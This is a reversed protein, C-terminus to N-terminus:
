NGKVDGWFSLDVEPVSIRPIFPLFYLGYETSFYLVSM